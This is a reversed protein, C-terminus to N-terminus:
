DFNQRNECHTTYVDLLWAVDDSFWNSFVVVDLVLVGLCSDIDHPLDSLNNFEGFVKTPSGGKLLIRFRIYNYHLCTGHGFCVQVFRINWSHFSYSFSSWTCLWCCDTKTHLRASEGM